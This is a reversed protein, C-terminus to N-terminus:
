NLIIILALKILAAGHLTAIAEVEAQAEAEAQWMRM